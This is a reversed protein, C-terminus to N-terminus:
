RVAITVTNSSFSALGLVVPVASGSPTTSPVIVNIQWLGVFCPAMGSYLVSADIGSISVLPTDNTAYLHDGSCSAAVGTPLDLPQATSFDRFKIGQGHGYITIVEGPAATTLAIGLQQSKAPDGNLSGDKNLAVAQGRGTQELTFLAPSSDAITALGTAVVNGRFLVELLVTGSADVPVQCNIQFGGASRGPVAGVGVYYLAALSGGIRVSVDQLLTPLRSTTATTVFGALADIKITSDFGGGFLSVLSGPSVAQTVFTASNVAAVVGANSNVRTTTEARNKSDELNSAADRAQAYFSYSRGPVGAFYASRTTTEVLWTKFPGGEESVFITFTHVGSGQDTGDWKVPFVSASQLSPLSSIQSVPKSADVTNTWAPTQIAPNVDFVISAVNRIATGTTLGPKTRVAFSVGGEGEPAQVDPPLFGALPDQPLKGTIPDLSTFQWTLLGSLSNLGAEVRVLLARAPRLDVITSFTKTGAPIPIRTQGFTIPGLEVTSLDFIAMDLQDTVKVEQAPATARASNEFVITYPVITTSGLYRQSGTGSGGTKENPDISTVVSINLLSLQELVHGLGGFRLLLPDAALLQGWFSQDPWLKDFLVSFIGGPGYWDPWTPAYGIDRYLQNLASVCDNSVPPTPFLSYIFVQKTTIAAAAVALAHRAVDAAQTETLGPPRISGQFTDGKAWEAKPVIRYSGTILIDARRSVQDNIFDVIQDGEVVLGIHGSPLSDGPDSTKFVLDGPKLTATSISSRPATTSLRLIRTESALQLARQAGTFESLYASAELVGGQVAIQGTQNSTLSLDITRTGLAPMAPAFFTLYTLGNVVRPTDILKGLSVLYPVASKITVGAPVAFWVVVDHADVSSENVVTAQYVTERGRAVRTRGTLSLSLKAPSGAEVAFAASLTATAGNPNSVAIDWAGRAKGRLDFTAYLSAGGDALLVSSGIIDGSGPRLLKVSTNPEFKNGALRITVLGTDGGKAPVAGTLRLLDSPPVVGPSVRIDDFWASGDGSSPSVYALQREAATAPLNESGAFVENVWYSLKVTSTNVVEYSYRVKTWGQTSYKGLALGAFSKIFGDPDLLWVGRNSSTWTAASHMQISAKWPHCGVSNEPRPFVSAEVTFPAAVTLSRHALAEFCGGASGTLRMSRSGSLSRTSDIRMDNNGSNAWGSPVSGSAYSEFDDFFGGATQGCIPSPIIAGLVLWLGACMQCSRRQALM